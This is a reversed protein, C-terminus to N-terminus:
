GCGLAGGGVLVGSCRAERHAVLCAALAPSIARFALRHLRQPSVGLAELVRATRAHRRRVAGLSTALLIGSPVAGVLGIGAIAVPLGVRDDLFFGTANIATQQDPGEVGFGAALWEDGISVLPRAFVVRSHASPLAEDPITGVLRGFRAELAERDSLLDASVLFEGPRPWSDLGLPLEVDQAIPEALLAHVTRGGVSTWIPEVRVTPLEDPFLEANRVAATSAFTARAMYSGCAVGASLVFVILLAASAAIGFLEQRSLTWPSRV